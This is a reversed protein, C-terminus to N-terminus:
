QLKEKAIRQRFELYSKEYSDLMEDGYGQKQVSYYGMESLEKYVAKRVALTGESESFEFPMTFGCGRRIVNLEKSREEKTKATSPMLYIRSREKTELFAARQNDSAKWESLIDGDAYPEMLPKAKMKRISWYDGGGGATYISKAMQYGRKYASELMPGFLRPPSGHVREDQDNPLTAWGQADSVASESRVCSFGGRHNLGYYGGVVIVGAIPEMTTADLVQVTVEKQGETGPIWPNGGSGGSRYKGDSFACGSLLLMVTAIFLQKSLKM